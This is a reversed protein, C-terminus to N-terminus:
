FHFAPGTVLHHSQLLTSATGFKVDVQERVRTFKYEAMWYLQGWTRVDLGGAVQIVPRGAQYHEDNLTQITSEVHPITAGAGFRLIAHCRADKEDAAKGLARRFMGNIMLLNVGHSLSFRQMITNVPLNATIPSGNLVGTITAPEDVNAFVKLHTFESEVGWHERFFYGVRFGYYLPPQFSEGRYSVEHFRLNNLIFPQRLDLPSAQTHAGGFYGGLTWQAACPSSMCFVAAVLLNLVHKLM